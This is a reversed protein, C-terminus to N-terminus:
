KDSLAQARAIEFLMQNLDAKAENRQEVARQVDEPAMKYDIPQCALDVNKSFESFAHENGLLDNIQQSLPALEGNFYANDVAQEGAIDFLASAYEMNDTYAHAGCEIRTGYAEREMQLTYRETLGENLARHYDSKIIEGTDKNEETVLAHIGSTRVTILQSDTELQQFGQKSVSHMKEHNETHRAAENILDRNIYIDQSEMSHGGWTKESLTRLTTRTEELRSVDELKGHEIAFNSTLEHSEIAFEYLSETTVTEMPNYEYGTLTQSCTEASQSFCESPGAYDATDSIGIEGIAHDVDQAVIGETNGFSVGEGLSEAGSTAESAESTDM